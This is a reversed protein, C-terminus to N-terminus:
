QHSRSAKSGGKKMGLELGHSASRLVLETALTGLKDSEAVTSRGDVVMM